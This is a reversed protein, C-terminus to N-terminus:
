ENSKGQDLEGSFSISALVIIFMMWFSGQMDNAALREAYQVFFSVILAAAIGLKLNKNPSNWTAWRAFFLLFTIVIIM